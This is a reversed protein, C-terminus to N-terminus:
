HIQGKHHVKTRLVSPTNVQSWRQYGAVSGILLCNQTDYFTGAVTPTFLIGETGKDTNATWSDSYAETCLGGGYFDTYNSYENMRDDIYIDIDGFYSEVYNDSGPTADVYTEKYSGYMDFPDLDFYAYMGYYDVGDGAYFLINTGTSDAVVLQDSNWDYELQAGTPWTTQAIYALINLIDKNLIKVTSYASYTTNGKYTDPQQSQLKMNFVLNMYDTTYGAFEAAAKATGLSAGFTVAAVMATCALKTLKM